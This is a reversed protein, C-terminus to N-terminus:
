GCGIGAMCTPLSGPLGVATIRARHSDHSGMWAKWFRETRKQSEWHGQAASIIQYSGSSGAVTSRMIGVMHLIDDATPSSLIWLSSSGFYPLTDILSSKGIFWGTVLTSNLKYWKYVSLNPSLCPNYIWAQIWIGIQWESARQTFVPLKSLKKSGTKKDTHYHPFHYWLIITFISHYLISWTSLKAAPM